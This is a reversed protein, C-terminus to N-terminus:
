RTDELSCGTGGRREYYRQHYDEAGYFTTAPLIRTAIKSKFKGSKAIRELSARALSEQEADHFFIVSRYQSGVDVGQRDIQTPDHISWFVDLLDEYSVVQPDYTVEVVEVHGTKGTCVDRYSPNELSGGTYGVQTDLVGKVQGFTAEVGWFCGAAFTAKKMGQRETTDGFVSQSAMDMGIWGLLVLPVTVLAVM